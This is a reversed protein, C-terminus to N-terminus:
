NWPLRLKWAIAVTEMILHYLLVPQSSFHYLQSWFRQMKSNVLQDFGSKTVNTRGFHRWKSPWFILTQKAILSFTFKSRCQSWLWRIWKGDNQVIIKLPTKTSLMDPHYRNCIVQILSLENDKWASRRHMWYLMRLRFRQSPLYLPNINSKFRDLLHFHSHLYFSM